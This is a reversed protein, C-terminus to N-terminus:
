KDSCTSTATFIEPLTLRSEPNICFFREKLPCYPGRKYKPENYRYMNIGTYIHTWIAKVRVTLMCTRMNEATKYFSASAHANHCRDFVCSWLDLTKFLYKLQLHQFAKNSCRQMSDVAFVSDFCLFTYICWLMLILTENDIICIKLM